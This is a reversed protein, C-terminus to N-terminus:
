LNRKMIRDTERKVERKKIDERKDFKKKGRGVAFELKVRNNKTYVKIPVLTLGKQQVTGILSIIEKKHLLLKRSRIPDYDPLKGAFKYLTIHCNTLYAENNHISVFAGKLSIHGLKASKVEQGTLVLGAEYKNLLEYDFTARKNAALIKM